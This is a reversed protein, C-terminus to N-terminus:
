DISKTKSSVFENCFTTWGREDELHIIYISLLEIIRKVKKELRFNFYSELSCKYNYHIFILGFHM